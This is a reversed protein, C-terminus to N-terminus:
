RLSKKLTPDFNKRYNIEVLASAAATKVVPTDAKLLEDHIFGFAMVSQRLATIYAAKQYPNKAEVAKKTVEESLEKHDSVKLAAEYLNAQVRFDSTKRAIASFEIWQEKTINSLIVESAAIRVNVNEDGLGQKLKEKAKKIPYKQLARIINVRVRYDEERIFRNSLFAFVSDTVVKRLALAAAMRIDASDTETARMLNKVIMRRNEATVTDLANSRAFFHAAGLRAYDSSDKLFSNM